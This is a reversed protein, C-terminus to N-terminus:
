FYSNTERIRTEAIDYGYSIQHPLLPHILSVFRKKRNNLDSPLMQLNGFRCSFLLFLYFFSALLIDNECLLVSILCVFPSTLMVACWILSLFIYTLQVDFFAFIPTHHTLLVNHFVLM